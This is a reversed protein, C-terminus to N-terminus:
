GKHSKIVEVLMNFLGDVMEKPTTDQLDKGLKAQVAIHVPCLIPVASM